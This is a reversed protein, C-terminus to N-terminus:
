NRSFRQQWCLRSSLSALMLRSAWPGSNILTIKAPKHVAMSPTLLGICDTCLATRRLFCSLATIITTLGVPVEPTLMISQSVRCEVGIAHCICSSYEAMQVSLYGSCGICNNMLLLIVLTLHIRVEVFTLTYGYSLVVTSLTDMFVLSLYLSALAQTMSIVALAQLVFHKQTDFRM